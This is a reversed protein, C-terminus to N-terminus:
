TSAQRQRSLFQSCKLSLHSMKLIIGATLDLNVFTFKMVNTHMKQIHCELKQLHSMKNNKIHGKKKKYHSM